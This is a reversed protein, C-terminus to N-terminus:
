GDSGEDDQEDSIERGINKLQDIEKQRLIRGPELIIIIGDDTKALSSICAREKESVIGEPVPEYAAEDVMLVQSIDDVVIGMHKGGLDLVIIRKKGASAERVNLRTRLDVVPLVQDRLRIVGEIFEPSNPIETIEQYHIVEQIKFIDMGYTEKGLVFTVLQQRSSERKRAAQNM